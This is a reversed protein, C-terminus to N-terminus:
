HFIEHRFQKDLSSLFTIATQLSLNEQKKSNAFRQQFFFDIKLAQILISKDNVECGKAKAKNIYTEIQGQSIYVKQDQFFKLFKFYIISPLFNNENAIFQEKKYAFLSQIGLSEGKGSNFKDFIKFTVADNEICSLLRLTELKQVLKESSFYKSDV